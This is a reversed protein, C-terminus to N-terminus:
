QYLFVLFTERKKRQGSPSSSGEKEEKKKKESDRGGELGRGLLFIAGEKQEYPSIKKGKQRRKMMSSDFEPKRKKPDGTERFTM